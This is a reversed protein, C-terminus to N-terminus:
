SQVRYGPALVASQVAFLAKDADKLRLRFRTPDLDADPSCDVCWNQLAYGVLPARVNLVLKGDKMGVDRAVVEPRDHRPHAILELSVVRGWQFDQEQKEHPQIVEDAM